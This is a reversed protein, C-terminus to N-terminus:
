PSSFELQYAALQRTYRTTGIVVLVVNEVDGGIELPIEVTNDENLELYEVRTENGYYSVLALRYTQPLLNNVRVFGAAEWDGNSVEFDEYYDIEPISVDDLLLGEGNTAADTIYEFRIYVRQGAFQSIDVSEQIWIPGYGSLDNYGWGYNNGSPDEATGSPTTVIDWDQNNTSTLLYVYDYDAEIDYWTWYTLTLPGDVDTFDFARTLTMDSQDGKNSWFAFDGSHAGEPLLHTFMSGTFKLLTEGQCNIVIYDSGYQHVDRLLSQGTCDSITENAFAKPADPYIHYTYRGDGVTGDQLYNTVAWDIALDDARYPQGNLPDTFDGRELVADVSDLGNEPDAVLEQSAEEGFRDLFYSMFLYAAGYSALTDDSNPWDNLQYDPNVIFSYDFGGTDYDNLFEALMSFGENIMSTENRDHNYHIMHQFEHAIVSNMTETGLYTNDANIVFMEHANSYKSALPHTENGGFYGATNWGIESAYVMYVHVDDDIGPSWESGFFEHDTPYIQNEFEEATTEVDEPEFDVGDDIWLYLHDTVYQLTTDVQFSVNTTTNNVWFTKKDGVQYPASYDTATEPINHVGLLRSALERLDNEPVETNELVELTHQSIDTQLSDGPIDTLRILEPTETPTTDVSQDGFLQQAEMDLASQRVLFATAGVIVLCGILVLIFLFVGLGIWLVKKDKM